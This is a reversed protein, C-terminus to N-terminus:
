RKRGDIDRAAYAVDTAWSRFIGENFSGSGKMHRVAVDLIYAFQDEPLERGMDGVMTAVIQYDKRTM